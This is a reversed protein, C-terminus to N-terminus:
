YPRPTRILDLAWVLADRYTRMLTPRATKHVFLAIGATNAYWDATHSRGAADICTATSNAPSDQFHSMGVLVDADQEYGTLVCFATPVVIGIGLVPYGRYRISDVIRSRMWSEERYATGTGFLAPTRYVEGDETGPLEQWAANGAVELTWGTARAICRLAEAPSSGVTLMSPNEEDWRGANWTLRFAAGSVGM